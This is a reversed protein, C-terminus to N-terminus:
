KVKEKAEFRTDKVIETQQGNIFEALTVIVGPKRANEFTQEAAWRDQFEWGKGRGNDDTSIVRWTKIKNGGDQLLDGM